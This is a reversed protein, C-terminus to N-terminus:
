CCETEKMDQKIWGFFFYGLGSGLIIALCIWYNYSMFVLMLLYSIIIQILNILTQIIHPAALLRELYTQTRIEKPKSHCRNSKMEMELTMRKVEKRVTLRLLYERLCKLLEYLFAVSFIVLIAFLFEPISSAIWDKWLIRECHGGHFVMSSPCSKEENVDINEQAHNHDM